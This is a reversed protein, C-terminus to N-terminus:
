FLRGLDIVSNELLVLSRDRAANFAAASIARFFPSLFICHLQAVRHDRAVASM